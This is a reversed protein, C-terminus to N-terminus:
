AKYYEIAVYGALTATTSQGTATIYGGASLYVATTSDSLGLTAPTVNAILNSAAAGSTTSTGIQISTAPSTTSVYAQTRTIVVDDNLAVQYNVLGATTNAMNTVTAFPIKAWNTLRYTAATGGTPTKPGGVHGLSKGEVDSWFQMSGDANQKLDM